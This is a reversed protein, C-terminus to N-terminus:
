SPPRVASPMTSHTLEMIPAGTVVCADTAETWAGPSLGAKTRLASLRSVPKSSAALLLRLFAAHCKTFAEPLALTVRRCLPSSGISSASPAPSLSFTSAKRWSLMRGSKPGSSPSVKSLYMSAPLPRTQLRKGLPSCPKSPMSAWFRGMIDSTACFSLPFYKTVKVSVSFNLSAMSLMSLMVSNGAMATWFFAPSLLFNTYVPSIVAAFIEANISSTSAPLISGLNFDSASGGALSSGTFVMTPEVM